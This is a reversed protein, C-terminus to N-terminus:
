RHDPHRHDHTIGEDPPQLWGSRVMYRLMTAFYDDTLAPCAVGAGRLLDATAATDFTPMTRNEPAELMDSLPALANDSGLDLRGALTACWHAWRRADARHGAARVADFIRNWDLPEPDIVHHTRGAAGELTSLAVIATAVFDVTGVPLPYERLPASGLQVCGQIVKTLYDEPNAAGSDADALINGPRYVTVPVGRARALGVLAEAM